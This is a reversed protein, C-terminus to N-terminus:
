WNGLWQILSVVPRDTIQGIQDFAQTVVQRFDRSTVRGRATIANPRHKSFCAGGARLGAIKARTLIDFLEHDDPNSTALGFIPGLAPEEERPHQRRRFVAHIRRLIEERRAHVLQLTALLLVNSGTVLALADTVIHQRLEGDDDLFTVSRVFSWPGLSDVTRGTQLAGGVTGSLLLLQEVGGLGYNAGGVVLDKWFVGSEVWVQGRDPMWELRQTQNHIILGPFGFDSVVTQSGSGLVVWPLATEKAARVAAILTDITDARVYYDAVGGVGLRFVDRLPRHEELRGPIRRALEQGFGLKKM